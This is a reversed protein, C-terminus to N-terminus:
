QMIFRKNTEMRRVEATVIQHLTSLKTNRNYTYNLNKYQDRIVEKLDSESNTKRCSENKLYLIYTEVCDDSHSWITFASGSSTNEKIIAPLIEESICAEINRHLFINVVNSDSMVPSSSFFQFDTYRRGFKRLYTRGQDLWILYTRGVIATSRWNRIAWTDCPEYYVITDISNSQLFRICSDIQPEIKQGFSPCACIILVSFLFSHKKM